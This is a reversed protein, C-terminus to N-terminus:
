KCAFAASGVANDPLTKDRSQFFSIWAGGSSCPLLEEPDTSSRNKFLLFTMVPVVSCRGSSPGHIEVAINRGYEDNSESYPYTPKPSSPSITFPHWKCGEFKIKHGRIAFKSGQATRSEGYWDGQLAAVVADQIVSGNTPEALRNSEVWGYFVRKKGQYKVATQDGCTDGVAVRDGSIIYVSTDPPQSHLQLREGSAGTVIKTGKPVFTAPDIQEGCSPRDAALGSDVLAQGAIVLCLFLVSRTLTM